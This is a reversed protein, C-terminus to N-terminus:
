MEENKVLVGMLWVCGFCYIGELCRPNVGVCSHCVNYQLGNM